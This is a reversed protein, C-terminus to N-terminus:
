SGAGVLEPTTRRVRGQVRAVMNRTPGRGLKAACAAIAQEACVDRYHMDERVLNWDGVVATTYNVLQVLLVHMHGMLQEIFAVNPEKGKVAFVVADVARALQKRMDHRHALARGGIRRVAVTFHANNRAMWEAAVQADTQKDVNFSAIPLDENPPQAIAARMAAASVAPDHTLPPTTCDTTM